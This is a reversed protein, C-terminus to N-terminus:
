IQLKHGSGRHKHASGYPPPPPPLPFLPDLGGPFDCTIHPEISILIQVGRSSAPGGQFINSGRQIRSFTYNERYYFWQVGEQLSYFLKLVLFLYFFFGLFVNHRSNEPQRAQIGRSLFDQIRAHQKTNIRMLACFDCKVNRKKYRSTWLKKQIEMKM